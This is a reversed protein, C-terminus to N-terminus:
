NKGEYYNCQQLSGLRFRLPIKTVKEVRLEQRCFFGFNRTYYDQPIENNISWDNAKLMDQNVPNLTPPIFHLLAPSTKVVSTSLFNKGKL